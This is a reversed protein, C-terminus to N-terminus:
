SKEESTDPCLDTGSHVGFCFPHTALATSKPAPLTSSPLIANSGHGTDRERYDELANKQDILSVAGYTQDPVIENLAIMLYSATIPELHAWHNM